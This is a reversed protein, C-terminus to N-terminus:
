RNKRLGEYFKKLESFEQGTLGFVEFYSWSYCIDITINEDEYITMMPDGVYNRCNFLGCDGADFYKEIVEKAKKLNSM